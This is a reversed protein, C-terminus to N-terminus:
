SCFRKFLKTLKKSKFQKQFNAGMHRMCWRSKLDVWKLTRQRQVSGKQLDQMAQMIGGHRDHIVCVDQRDQVICSKIRELFWYWSDGNEIEVFAFTLPLVQNNGNAAIATLMTGKYRAILFTGDICIVQRCYQFANICAGLAFFARQLIRKTPDQHLNYHKIEFYRSEECLTNLVRPLNHYSAEYTGWRMELVKQKARYAKSYSIKYQFDDEISNIIAKPEYEPNNVIKSYMHQAVFDVTLNRHQSDLEEFICTHHEIRSVIWFTDYKGLYAHVRFPCDDRICKVDYVQPSSKQVRFEKKLCKASWKQIAEKLEIKSHYIAGVSVQNESYEWPVTEGENVLLQSHDYNAWQSPVQNLTDDEHDSDEDVRVDAEYGGAADPIEEGEDAGGRPERVTESAEGQEDDGIENLENVNNEVVQEVVTAEDSGRASEAEANVKEYPENHDLKFCKMFRNYVSRFPREIAKDLGKTVSRCRKKERASCGGEGGRRHAAGRGRKREPARRGEAAGGGGREM